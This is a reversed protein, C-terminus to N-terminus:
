TIYNGDLIVCALSCLYTFRNDVYQTRSLRWARTVIIELQEDWCATGPRAKAQDDHAAIEWEARCEHAGADSHLHVSIIDKM